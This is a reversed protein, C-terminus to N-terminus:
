EIKKIEELYKNTYNEAIEIAKKIADMPKIEGNTMLKLVISTILPHPQYYSAYIVGEVKRLSGAILNGLTHEEGEIEIEAYTDTSKLVKIQM